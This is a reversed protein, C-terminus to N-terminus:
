KKSVFCDKYESPMLACMSQNSEFITYLSYQGQLIVKYGENSWHVKKGAKIAEIIELEGM